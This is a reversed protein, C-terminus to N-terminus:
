LRAAVGQGPGESQAPSVRIRTEGTFRLAASPAAQAPGPQAPRRPQRRELYDTPRRRCRHRGSLEPAGTEPYHRFRTPISWAPWWGARRGPSASRFRSGRPCRATSGYACRPGPGQHPHDGQRWRRQGEPLSRRGSSIDLTRFRRWSKFRPFGPTEGTKVRRFFAAFARDVRKLTEVAVSRLEAAWEPDDQRVLTLERCQSAFSLSKGAMSGPTAANKCPLTTCVARPGADARGPPPPWRPHAPRSVQYTRASMLFGAADAGAPETTSDEM